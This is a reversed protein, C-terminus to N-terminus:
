DFITEQIEDMDITFLTEETKKVQVDDTEKLRGDAAWEKICAIAQSFSDFPYISQQENGNIILVYNKSKKAM